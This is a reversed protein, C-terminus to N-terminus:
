TCPLMLRGKLLYLLGWAERQWHGHETIERACVQARQIKERLHNRSTAQPIPNPHELYLPHTSELEQSGVGLGEAEWSRPNKEM